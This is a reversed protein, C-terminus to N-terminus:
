AEALPRPKDILVVQVEAPPVFAAEFVPQLPLGPLGIGNASPTVAGTRRLIATTRLAEHIMAAIPKRELREFVQVGHDFNELFNHLLVGRLLEREVPLRAPTQLIGHFPGPSTLLGLTPRKRPAVDVGAKAGVLMVGEHVLLPSASPAGSHSCTPPSCHPPM